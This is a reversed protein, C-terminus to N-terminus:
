DRCIKDLLQAMRLAFKIIQETSKAQILSYLCWYRYM